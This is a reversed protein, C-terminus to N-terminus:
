QGGRHDLPWLEQGCVSVVFIAMGFPNGVLIHTCLNFLGFMKYLISSLCATLSSLRLESYEFWLNLVYTYILIYNITTFISPFFLYVCVPHKLFSWLAISCRSRHITQVCILTFTKTDSAVLLMQFVMTFSKLFVRYLWHLYCQVTVTGSLVTHKALNHCNFVSYMDSSIQSARKQFMRYIFLFPHWMFSAYRINVDAYLGINRASCSSFVLYRCVTPEVDTTVHSWCAAMVCCSSRCTVILHTCLCTISRLM